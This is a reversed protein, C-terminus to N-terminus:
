SCPQSLKRARAERHRQAQARYWRLFGRRVRPLGFVILGVVALVPIVAYWFAITAAVIFAGGLLALWGGPPRGLRLRGGVHVGPLIQISGYVSM